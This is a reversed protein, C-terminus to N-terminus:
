GINTVFEKTLIKVGSNESFLMKKPTYNRKNKGCFKIKTKLFLLNKKKFELFKLTKIEFLGM